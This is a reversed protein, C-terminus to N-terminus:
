PALNLFVRLRDLEAGLERRFGGERPPSAVYGLESRLQGKEVSVNGWGIVRDRWLLPL